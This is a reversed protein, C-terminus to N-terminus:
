SESLYLLEDLTVCDNMASNPKALHTPKLNQARLGALYPCSHAILVGATTLAGALLFSRPFARGADVALFTSLQMSIRVYKQGSTIRIVESRMGNTLVLQKAVDLM